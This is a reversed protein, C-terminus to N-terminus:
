FHGSNIEPWKSKRRGFAAIDPLHGQRHVPQANRWRYSAPRGDRADQARPKTGDPEGGGHRRQNGRGNSRIAQEEHHARWGNQKGCRRPRIHSLMETLNGLKVDDVAGKIAGCDNHGLVVIARAGAVKTAFELSGIIDTNVFNGAVRACFIDGIRQDFVLEPSVRSDICGVVAAFPAQAYSTDKVQQMLNCNITKGNAFRDNGEKLRAIADQPSVASQRDATMVACEAGQAPSQAQAQTVAFGSLLATSACQCFLRRNLM